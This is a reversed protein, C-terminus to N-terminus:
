LYSFCFYFHLFFLKIKFILYLTFFILKWVVIEKKKCGLRSQGDFLPGLRLLVCTFGYIGKIRMCLVIKQHYDWATWIHGFFTDISYFNPRICFISLHFLYTFLSTPKCKKLNQGLVRLCCQKVYCIEYLGIRFM